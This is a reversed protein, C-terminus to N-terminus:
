SLGTASPRPIAAGPIGAYVQRVGRLRVVRLVGPAFAARDAFVVPFGGGSIWRFLVSPCWRVVAGAGGCAHCAM